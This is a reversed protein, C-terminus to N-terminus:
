LINVNNAPVRTVFNQRGAAMCRVMSRNFFYLTLEM